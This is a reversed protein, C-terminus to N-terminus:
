RDDRHQRASNEPLREERSTFRDNRNQQLPVSRDANRIPPAMTRDRSTNRDGSRDRQGNPLRDSVRIEPEM